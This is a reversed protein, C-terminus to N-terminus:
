AVARNKMEVLLKGGDSVVSWTPLRVTEDELCQGTELDFHQKYIPSAVVVRGKLSGVIGRSIVNAKAFPCFNDIGFLKEGQPTTIRFIAVQHGEVLVARGSDPIIEEVSGVIALKM